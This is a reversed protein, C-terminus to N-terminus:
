HLEVFAADLQKRLDAVDSPSLTHETGDINLVAHGDDVTVTTPEPEKTKKTAM